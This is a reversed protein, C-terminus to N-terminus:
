EDAATIWVPKWIGGAFRSDHVRMTITNRAGPTISGTIEVAVPKDWLLGADGESAGAYEGNIWLKFTEDVAECYLWVRKDQMAPIDVDVTYWAYGDYGEHGQEEWPEHISIPRWEPGPATSHWADRQGIDDPDTRFLWQEPLELVRRASMAAVPPKYETGLKGFYGLIPKIKRQKVIAWLREQIRAQRAFLSPDEKAQQTVKDLEAFLLAYRLRDVRARVEEAQAARGAQDLLAHGQTIIQPTFKAMDNFKVHDSSARLGARELHRFYSAVATAAEGYVRRCFDDIYADVDTNIDWALRARLNLLLPSSTFTSDWEDSLHRCGEAHIARLIDAEAHYYPCPAELHHYDLYRYVSLGALRSWDRFRQMGKANVECAADIVKHKFCRDWWTLEIMVNRRPLYKRPLERTSGYAFTFITKDPYKQEVLEAVKNIFYMWRDTLHMSTKGNQSWDIEETDLAKCQDCECWYSPEDEANIGFRKAAPHNAFYDCIYDAVIRPLEPNAVCVEAARGSSHKATRQGKVLPYLEPHDAFWKDPPLITYLTHGAFENWEGGRIAGYSWMTPYSAKLRNMRNRAAWDVWQETAVHTPKYDPPTHYVQITHGGRLEFSPRHVVLRDPLELGEVKPIIEGLPGPWCWRCGLTHFLEHVAYYDGRPTNGLCVIAASGIDLVIGEEGVLALQAAYDRGPPTVGIWVYRGAATDGVSSAIMIAPAQGTIAKLIRQTELALHGHHPRVSDPTIIGSIPDGDTPALGAQIPPPPAIMEISVDDFCVRGPGQIQLYLGHRGTTPIEFEQHVQRWDPSDSVSKSVGGGQAPLWVHATAGGTTMTWASLHYTAGTILYMDGLHWRAWGTKDAKVAEIAACREGSRARPSIFFRYEGKRTDTQWSVASADGGEEFGPNPVLNDSSASLCLALAAVACILRMPQAGGPVRKVALVPDQICPRRLHGYSEGLPM